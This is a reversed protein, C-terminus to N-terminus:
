GRAARQRWAAYAAREARDRRDRRERRAREEDRLCEPCEEPPTDPPLPHGNPCVEPERVAAAYQLPM